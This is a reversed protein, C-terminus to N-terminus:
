LYSHFQVNCAQYDMQGFLMAVHCLAIFKGASFKHKSLDYRLAKPSLLWLPFTHEPFTKKKKLFPWLFNGVLTSSVCFNLFFKTNPYGLGMTPLSCFTENLVCQVLMFLFVQNTNLVWNEKRQHQFLFCLMIPFVVLCIYALFTEASSLSTTHKKYQGYQITRYKHSYCICHM